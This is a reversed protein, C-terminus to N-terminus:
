LKQRASVRRGRVKTARRVPALPTDIVSEVVSNELNSRDVTFAGSVKSFFGPVQTFVHRISFGVWSHAPDIDYVETEAHASQYVGISLCTLLLLTKLPKM